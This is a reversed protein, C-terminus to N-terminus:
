HLQRGPVHGGQLNRRAMEPDATTWNEFAKAVISRMAMPTSTERRHDMLASPPRVCTSPWAIPIGTYQVRESATNRLIVPCGKIAVDDDTTPRHQRDPCSRSLAQLSVAIGGPPALAKRNRTERPLRPRKSCSPSKWCVGGLFPKPRPYNRVCCAKWVGPSRM